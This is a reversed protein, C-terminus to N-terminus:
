TDFFLLSADSSDIAGIANLLSKQQPLCSQLVELASMACPSQALDEVIKYHQSDRTNLNHTTRRLAVKSLCSPADFTPKDLTLLGCLWYMTPGYSGKPRLEM